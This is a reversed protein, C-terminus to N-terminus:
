QRVEAPCPGCHLKLVIRAKDTSFRDVIVVRDYHSGIAIPHGCVSCTHPARALPRSEWLKRIPTPESM